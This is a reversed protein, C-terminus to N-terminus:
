ERPIPTTLTPLLLTSGMEDITWLITPPLPLHFFSFHVKHRCGLSKAAADGEGDKTKFPQHLRLGVVGKREVEVVVGELIEQGSIAGPLSSDARSVYM